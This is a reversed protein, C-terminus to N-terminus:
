ISQMRQEISRQRLDRFDAAPQGEGGKGAPLVLLRAARPQEGAAFMDQCQSLGLAVLGFDCMMRLALRQPNAWDLSVLPAWHEHLRQERDHVAELTEGPAVPAAHRWDGALATSPVLLVLVVFGRISM